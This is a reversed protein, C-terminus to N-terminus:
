YLLQKLIRECQANAISDANAPMALFPYEDKAFNKVWKQMALALAIALLETHISSLFTSLKQSVFSGFSLLFHLLRYKVGFYLPIKQPPRNWSSIQCPNSTGFIGGGGGTNSRRMSFKSSLHTGDHKVVAVVLEVLPGVLSRRLLNRGFPFYLVSSLYM